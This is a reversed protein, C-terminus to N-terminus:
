LDSFNEEPRMKGMNAYEDAGPKTNKNSRKKDEGHVRKSHYPDLELSYLEAVCFNDNNLGGYILMTTGAITASHSFRERPISGTLKAEYWTLNELFL